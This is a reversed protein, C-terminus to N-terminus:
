AEQRNLIANSLMPALTTAALVLAPDPDLHLHRIAAEVASSLPWGQREPTDDSLGRAIIAVGLARSQLDESQALNAAAQLPTM